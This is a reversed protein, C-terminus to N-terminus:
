YVFNSYTAVTKAAGKGTVGLPPFKIKLNLTAAFSYSIEYSKLEGAEIVATILIAKYSVTSSQELSIASGVADSIGSAVEEYTIFDNTAHALPNNAGKKPDTCDNLQFQYKNGSVKFQKIDGEDLKTAIFKYNESMGEPLESAGKAYKAEKDGIGIFNGVVSDVSANKDAIHIVTNLADTANGVDVPKTYACTRKWDYGANAAKATADNLAKVADAKSTSASAQSGDNAPKQADDPKQTDDGNAPTQSNDVNAPTQSNDDDGFDIVNNDDDNDAPTNVPTAEPVAKKGQSKGVSVVAVTLLLALLMAFFKTCREGRRQKKIAKIEVQEPTLPKKEKAM